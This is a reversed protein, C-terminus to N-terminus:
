VKQLEPFASVVQENMCEHPPTHIVLKNKSWISRVTKFKSVSSTGRHHFIWVTAGQGDVSFWNLEPECVKGQIMEALFPHVVPPFTHKSLECAGLNLSDEDSNTTTTLLYIM